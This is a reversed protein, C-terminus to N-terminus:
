KRERKQHLYEMLTKREIWILGLSPLATILMISTLFIKRTKDLDLEAEFKISIILEESISEYKKGDRDEYQVLVRGLSVNKQHTNIIRLQYSITISVNPAIQPIHYERSYNLTEFTWSPYDADVIKINYATANGANGVVIYIRIWEGLKASHKSSIKGVYLFPYETSVVHLTPDALSTSVEMNLDTCTNSDTNKMFPNYAALLVMLLFIPIFIRKLRM